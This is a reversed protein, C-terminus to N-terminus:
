VHREEEGEGEDDEPMGIRNRGRQGEGV